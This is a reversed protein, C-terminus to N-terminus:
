NPSVLLVSLSEVGVTISTILPSFSTTVTPVNLPADDALQRYLTSHTSNLSVLYCELENEMATCVAAELEANLEEDSLGTYSFTVTTKQEIIVEASTEVEREVEGTEGDGSESQLARRLSRRRSWDTAVASLSGATINESSLSPFILFLNM